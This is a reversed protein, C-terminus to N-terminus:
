RVEVHWFNGEFNADSLLERVAREVPPHGSDHGCLLGGSTVLPKWALIDAKVNEFDHSADIFVMDYPSYRGHCNWLFQAAQTSYMRLPFVKEFLLSKNINTLFQGYLWDWSKSELGSRHEESGLWHDVAIVQGSTHEALVTTSRGMWCGVEVISLHSEAQRALWELDEPNMWGEIKLANEINIM